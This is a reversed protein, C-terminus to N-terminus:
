RRTTPKKKAPAPKAATAKKPAPPAAEDSPWAETRWVGYIGNAVKRRVHPLERSKFFAILGNSQATPLRVMDGITMRAALAAYPSREVGRVPIPVGAEVQVANPDLRRPPQRRAKPFPVSTGAPASAERNASTDFISNPVGVPKPM